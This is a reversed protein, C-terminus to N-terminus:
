IQKQHCKVLAGLVTQTINVWRNRIQRHTSKGSMQDLELCTIRVSPTKYLLGNKRFRCLGHPGAYCLNQDRLLELRLGGGAGGLM